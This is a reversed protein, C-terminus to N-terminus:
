INKEALIKENFKELFEKSNAWEFDYESLEYLATACIYEYMGANPSKYVIWYLPKMASSGIDLVKKYRESKFVRTWGEEIVIEPNAQEEKTEEEVLTQFETAINELIETDLNELFLKEDVGDKSIENWEIKGSENSLYSYHEEVEAKLKSDDMNYNLIKNEISDPFMDKISEIYYSGDKPIEYEVVENNEFTFKYAMSSGESFILEENKVYYSEELIWMYAYKQNGKEEIGFGEYDIFVQYDQEDKDYGNQRQEEEIYQIAKSYLYEYDTIWNERNKRSFGVVIGCIVGIIVLVILMLIIRNRKNM